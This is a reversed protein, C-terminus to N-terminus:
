FGDPHHQAMVRHGGDSILCLASVLGGGGGGERDGAWSWGPRGVGRGVILM